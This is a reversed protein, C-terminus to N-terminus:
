VCILSLHASKYRHAYHNAILLELFLQTVVHQCRSIQLTMKDYGWLFLNIKIVSAKPIKGFGSLEVKILTPVLTPPNQARRLTENLFTKGKYVVHWPSLSIYLLTIYLTIHLQSYFCFTHPNKFQFTTSLSHVPYNSLSLSSKLWSIM